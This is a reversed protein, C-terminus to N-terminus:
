TYYTWLLRTKMENMEPDTTRTKVGACKAGGPCLPAMYLANEAGSSKCGVAARGPGELKSSM